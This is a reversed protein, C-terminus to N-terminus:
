FCSISFINNIEDLIIDMGVPKRIDKYKEVIDDTYKHIEKINDM